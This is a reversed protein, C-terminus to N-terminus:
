SMFPYDTYGGPGQGYFTEPNPPNWPADVRMRAVLVPNAIAAKGLLVDTFPMNQYVVDDHVIALVAAHDQRAWAGFFVKATAIHDTM